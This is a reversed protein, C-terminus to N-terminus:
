AAAGGGEDLKRNRAWLERVEARDAEREREYDARRAERETQDAELGSTGARLEELIREFREASERMEQEVGPDQYRSM